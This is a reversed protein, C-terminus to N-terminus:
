CAQFFVELVNNLTDKCHVFPQACQILELQGTYGHHPSRPHCPNSPVRSQFERINSWHRRNRFDGEWRLLKLHLLALVQFTEWDHFDSFAELSSFTIVGKMFLLFNFCLVPICLVVKGITFKCLYRHGLMAINRSESWFYPCEVSQM